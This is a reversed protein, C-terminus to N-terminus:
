KDCLRRWYVARHNIFAGYVKYFNCVNLLVIEVCNTCFLRSIRCILSFLSIRTATTLWFGDPAIAPEEDNETAAADHLNRVAKGVDKCTVNVKNEASWVIADVLEHLDHLEEEGDQFKVLWQYVFATIVSTSSKGLM